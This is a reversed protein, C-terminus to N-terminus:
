VEEHDLWAYTVWQKRGKVESVVEIVPRFMTREGVSLSVREQHVRFRAGGYRMSLGIM